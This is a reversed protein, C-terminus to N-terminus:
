SRDGSRGDMRPGRLRLLTDSRIPTCRRRNSGDWDIVRLEGRTRPSTWIFAIRKRDPSIVSVSAYDRATPSHINHTVQRAEGTALDRVFLEGGTGYESNTAYQAYSLFRGDASLSGIRMNVSSPAWVRTMSVETNEPAKTTELAKMRNGALVAVQRQDAFDRLIREYTKRAEANGLAQQCEAVRFLSEAALKRDMGQTSAIKQYIEIAGRLDGDVREKALGKQFLDNGSEAALVALAAGCVLFM